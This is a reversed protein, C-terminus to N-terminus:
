IYSATTTFHKTAGSAPLKFTIRSTVLRPVTVPVDELTDCVGDIGAGAWVSSYYGGCCGHLRSSVSVNFALLRRIRQEETDSFLGFGNHNPGTGINSSLVLVVFHQLKLLHCADNCVQM